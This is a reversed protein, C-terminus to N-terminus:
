QSAPIEKFYVTNRLDYKAQVQDDYTVEAVVSEAGNPTYKFIVFDETAKKEKAATTTKTFILVNENKSEIETVIGDAIEIKCDKAGTFTYTTVIEEGLGKSKTSIATTGLRIYCPGDGPFEKRQNGYAWNMDDGASYAVTTQIYFYDKEEVVEVETENSEKDGDKSCGSLMGTMTLSIVLLIVIWLKSKKLM